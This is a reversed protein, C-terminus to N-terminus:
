FSNGTAAHVDGGFPVVPTGTMSATNNYVSSLPECGTNSDACSLPSLEFYHGLAGDFISNSVTIGGYHDADPSLQANDNLLYIATGGSGNFTNGDVNLTLSGAIPAPATGSFLEKNSLRVHQFTTSMGLPTFQNNNLMVGPFN